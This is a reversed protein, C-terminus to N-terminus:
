PRVAFDFNAAYWGSHLSVKEVPIGFTPADILYGGGVYLGVHSEGAFELIDGPQLVSVHPLGAQGYSDRPISVGAAAWASMTLGSCDYGSSCPGTGGWAYPCGIAGYAFAVAKQAQTGTPGNYSGGSTGGAGIQQTRQVPTLSNVLAQQQAVLKNLEAKQSALKRKLQTVAAATRAALTRAGALLRNTALIQKLQLYNDSSLHTLFASQSLLTQPNGNTLLAAASTMSGNEYVNAAIQAIRERMLQVAAMDRSVERNVLALRQRASALDQVAQDYRQGLWNEKYTLQKLKAQAQGLTPQPQAGASGAVTLLAAAALV